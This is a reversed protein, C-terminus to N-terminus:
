LGQSLRVNIAQALENPRQSGILLRKGHVLELQVGQNGSVNYAIGKKWGYRIGWGGYERVPRYTCAQCTKIEDYAIIRKTLPFFNILLGAEGVRTELRMQYFMYSIVPGLLIFVPTIIYLVTPGLPRDGWQRGLILQEYLLWCFPLSVALCVILMLGWLWFQRFRQVEYFNNNEM